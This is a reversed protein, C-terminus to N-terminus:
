AVIRTEDVLRGVLPAAPTEDVDLLAIYAPTRELDALLADMRDCGDKYWAMAQAPDAIYRAHHFAAAAEIYARVQEADLDMGADCVCQELVALRNLAERGLTRDGLMPAEWVAALSRQMQKWGLWFTNGAVHPKKDFLGGAARVMAVGAVFCLDQEDSLSPIKGNRMATRPRQEIRYYADRPRLPQAVVLDGMLQPLLPLGDIQQAGPALREPQVGTPRGEYLAWPLGDRRRGLLYQVKHPLEWVQVNLSIQLIRPPRKTFDQLRWSVLMTRM